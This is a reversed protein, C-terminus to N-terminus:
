LCVKMRHHHSRKGLQHTSRLARISPVSGPGEPLVLRQSTPDSEGAAPQLFARCRSSEIRHRESMLEQENVKEANGLNLRSRGPADLDRIRDFDVGDGDRCLGDLARHATNTM